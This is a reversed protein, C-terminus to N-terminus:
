QAPASVPAVSRGSQGPFGSQAFPMEDESHFRNGAADIITPTVFIVLNKKQTQSAESRFLRGILPIDGLIPVQDKLKSVNETILGGLVITQGDWVNVSTTVQRIRFHPLPLQATLPVGGAGSQAQVVFQGPDDYGIFEAITPILTMQISFGDASVTPLVDFTPGFPLTETSPQITTAANNIVTGGVGGAASATGGGTGASTGIVITQLDVVMVEAQRGSLTTVEAESLMDVGDRQQLAHIVVKFQPDTLIGTFSALAPATPLNNATQRLGSTLLGDSAAATTATGTPFFGSPNGASPAGTFTPQTGGSMAMSGNNMLVNGLYWDFGLARSDNQTVEVFKSKINVQPPTINLVQVAREIMDLDGLAAYILLTGERDNFFLAKPAELEVGLNAFFRRAMLQVGEMANTRTVGTLGGGGVGGGTGGGLGGGGGGGAVNVRPIMLLGGGGGGGGGGMGGGMGGMMGGGGGGGLGGGGGGGGSGGGSSAQAIAGWDFGSVAQLGQQFTNPDVKITRFYLPTTERGKLSFVVAYDEVSFKIPKDSVKCIADLVDALRMEHLAPDLKVAIQTMDVAEAGGGGVPPLGTAPDVTPAAAGGGSDVNPNIIFNIGKKDPDRKLAQESLLKVVEGLPLNQWPGVTDMTIIDLKHYILQRGRGTFVLNTRSYPNPQPLSERQRPIAWEKEVQNMKDRSDIDREHLELNFHAERVLNMYYYAAQNEPDEKRALKLKAEAEDLKGMEYYLKGDQVLVAARDKAEKVRPVEALTEPDPMLRKHEALNRDNEHRFNIADANTPDVRLVDDVEKKAGRYDGKRVASRALELRVTALGAKTQRAEQDVGSGSNLLLDYADDYLKAANALEGREQAARAQVLKQQLLIRNQQRYVAEKIAADQDPAQALAAPVTALLLSLGLTLTAAKIM